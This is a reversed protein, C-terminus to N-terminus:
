LLAWKVEFSPTGGHCCFMEVNELAVIWKVGVCVCFVCLAQSHALGRKVNSDPRRQVWRRM